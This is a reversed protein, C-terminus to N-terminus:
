LTTAPDNLHERIDNELTALAPWMAALEHMVQVFREAEEANSAYVIKVTGDKKHIQIPTSM